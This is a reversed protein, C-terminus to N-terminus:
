FRGSRLRGLETEVLEFPLQFFDFREYLPTLLAYMVEVLNDRLQERVGDLTAHAEAFKDQLGQARAIQTQLQLLYSADGSKRAPELVAVFAKESAAPDNFNWLSHIEPLASEM